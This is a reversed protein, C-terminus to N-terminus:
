NKNPYEIIGSWNGNTNVDDYEVGTERQTSMMMSLELEGEGTERQISMMMSRELKGEGTEM